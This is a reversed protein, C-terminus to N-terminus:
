LAMVPYGLRAVTVDAVLDGVSNGVAFVTLGLIAESIGFIVGLAKLVGVVEGAITSIWAVAIVFGLFCFAFHYKPRQDPSTTFLLAGLLVLSCVLSILVGKVLTRGPDTLDEAMNAWVIFVAFAPGTFIQLVLLWRNWSQDERVATSTQDLDPKYHPANLQELHHQVAEAPVPVSPGDPTAYPFSFPFSTESVTSFSSRTSRRYRQWETEPELRGSPEYSVPAATHGPHGSPPEDVIGEESGDDTTASEVVPLTIVLLFLSPVSLVSVAKDWVSKDQWGQLTPFLTGVLVYPDPLFRYSWWRVPKPLGDTPNIEDLPSHRERQPTHIGSRSPHSPNPTMAMPSDTYLPFPSVPPSSQQSGPSPSKPITLALGPRSAAPEGGVPEEVEAIRGTVAHPPPALMGGVTHASHSHAHGRGQTQPPDVVIAALDNDMAVPLAGSSHSRNRAVLTANGTGQVTEASELGHVAPGGGESWGIGPGHESYSRTIHIPAMRMNREKQLSSLVSRFELAGVLSPRIPTITTTNRRGRPRNVRMSNAVEAAVHQQSREADVDGDDDEEDAGAVEIRPGRELMGIDVSASLGRAGPTTDEDDPDDRYSELEDNGQEGVPAYFHGRSAVERAKRAKRRKAYAHWGVVFIVYFTYFGIMSLSEWLHISGDSLFVFTFTVAVIFFCIDRVFTNKSVKFERVLAMSGAVVATIFGAAGVLEGLAMSGSNSSMAAFTSFVDPSGNGFALFTVGALSESLGLVTAITSLNVSFFDSAAIGITTFLLMLWVMLITFALPTVSGLTCYYFSLYEILGAEDDRCNRRVFACKDAAQHVLRCDEGSRASLLDRGHSSDPLLPPQVFIGYVALLTLVFATAYL